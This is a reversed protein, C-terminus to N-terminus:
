PPQVEYFIAREILDYWAIYEGLKRDILELEHQTLARGYEQKAVTQM